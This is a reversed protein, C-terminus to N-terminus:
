TGTMGIKSLSRNLISAGNSLTGNIRVPDNHVYHLIEVGITFLLYRLDPKASPGAESRVSDNTM